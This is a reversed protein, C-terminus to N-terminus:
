GKFSCKKTKRKTIKKKTLLFSSIQQKSLNTKRLDLSSLGKQYTWGKWASPLLVNWEHGSFRWCPWWEIDSLQTWHLILWFMNQESRKKNQKTKNSNHNKYCWHSILFLDGLWVNTICTSSYTKICQLHILHATIQCMPKPDQLTQQQM